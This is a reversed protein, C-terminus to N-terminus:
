PAAWACEPWTAILDCTSCVRYGGVCVVIVPGPPYLLWERSAYSQRCERVFDLIEGEIRLSRAPVFASERISGGGPVDGRGYGGCAYRCSSLLSLRRRERSVSRIERERGLWEHYRHIALGAKKRREAKGGGKM